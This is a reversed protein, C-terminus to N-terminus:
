FVALHLFFLAGFESRWYESLAQLIKLSRDSDDPRVSLWLHYGEIKVIEIEFQEAIGERNMWVKMLKDLRILLDAPYLGRIKIWHGNKDLRSESHDLGLILGHEERISQMTKQILTRCGGCASTAMTETELHTLDYDSRTLIQKKLERAGV